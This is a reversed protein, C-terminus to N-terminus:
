EGESNDANEGSEDSGGADDGSDASDDSNDDTSADGSDDANTDSNDDGSADDNGANAGAPAKAKSAKKPMDNAFQNPVGANPAGLSPAMGGNPNGLSPAMGGNPVGATPTGPAGAQPLQPAQNPTTPMGFNPNVLQSQQVAQPTMQQANTSITEVVTTFKPLIFESNIMKCQTTTCYNTASTKNDFIFIGDKHSTVIFREHQNNFFMIAVVSILATACLILTARIVSMSEGKDERNEPLYPNYFFTERDANM